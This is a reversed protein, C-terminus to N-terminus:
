PRRAVPQDLPAHNAQTAAWHDGCGGDGHNGGARGDDNDNGQSGDEIGMHIVTKYVLMMMIMMTAMVMMVVVVVMALATVIM